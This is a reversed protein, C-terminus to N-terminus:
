FLVFYLALAGGALLVGAVASVIRKVPWRRKEKENLLSIPPGSRLLGDAYEEAMKMMKEVSENEQKPRLFLVIREFCSDDEGSIEIIRKNIGRIM